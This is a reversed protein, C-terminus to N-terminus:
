YTNKINPREFNDDPVYVVENQQAAVDNGLTSARDARGQHTRLMSYFVVCTFAIDRVIKPRQEITGLLARFRSVLIEFVNEVVRRVRSIRYKAIKEERTLQRRSFHKMMWPMLAFANDGLLFYDLDPGEVGMAESSLLGLTGDEIKEKM